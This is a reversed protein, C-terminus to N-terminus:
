YALAFSILWLKKMYFKYSFIRTRIPFPSSSLCFFVHSSLRFKFLSVGVQVGSDCGILANGVSNLSTAIDNFFSEDCDPNKCSLEDNSEIDSDVYLDAEVSVM